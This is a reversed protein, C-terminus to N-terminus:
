LYHYYFLSFVFHELALVNIDEGGEDEVEVGAGEGEEVVEEEEWKIATM